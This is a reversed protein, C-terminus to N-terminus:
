SKNGIRLPEWTENSNCAQIIESDRRQFILTAIELLIDICRTWNVDTIHEQKYRLHAVNCRLKYIYNSMQRHIDSDTKTTDPLIEALSEM